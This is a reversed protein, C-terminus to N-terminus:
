LAPKAAQPTPLSSQKWQLPTGPPLFRVARSIDWNAMRFGGIGPRSMQSPIGTGHLGYPLPAPNDSKALDIWLIGVPNNPGAPLYQETTLVPVPSPTPASDGVFFTDAPKPTERPEQLTALRPRPMADLVTWTGKGRLGPRAPAVPMVAVLRDNRYIELRSLDVIAATVVNAPDVSPQLPPDFAKEIQFPIVNPVRFETGAVPLTQIGPNLLRLLDERCHFKEAVFEWPSRYALMSATTMEEYSPPPVPTPKPTPKGKASPPTNSAAPKQAKPPAIFRFDEPKLTYKTVVEGVNAQAKAKLLETDGVDGRQTQYLYVLKQFELGTKGDIPGASFNERDLFVQLLFVEQNLIASPDASPSKAKGVTKTAPPEPPLGLAICEELTPIKLVQGIRILDDRLGNAAKIQAVTVGHKKAILVLADGKRVEHSNAQDRPVVAPLAAGPLVAPPPEPLELGWDKEDSPIVRWKWKVAEELGPEVGSVTGAPTGQAVVEVAAAGLLVTTLFFVATRKLM